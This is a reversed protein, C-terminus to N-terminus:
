EKVNLKVLESSLDREIDAPPVLQNEKAPELDTTITTMSPNTDSNSSQPGSEDGDDEWNDPVDERKGNQQAIKKAEIKKEKRRANKKAASTKKDASTEEDASTKDASRKVASTTSPPAWGIIHGKPLTNIDM